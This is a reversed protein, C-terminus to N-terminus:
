NCFKQYSHFGCLFVCNDTRTTGSFHCSNAKKDINTLIKETLFELANTTSLNNLFGYQNKSLLVCQLVSNLLRKHLKKFIETLKLILSIPCCNGPKYKEKSKHIPAVKATKFPDPWIVQM